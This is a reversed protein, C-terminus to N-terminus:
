GPTVVQIKREIDPRTKQMRIFIETKHSKKNGRINSTFSLDMELGKPEDSFEECSVQITFNGRPVERDLISYCGRDMGTDRVTMNVLHVSEHPSFFVAALTKGVLQIYPEEPTFAPYNTVVGYLRQTAKRPAQPEVKRVLGQNLNNNEEIEDPDFACTGEICKPKLTCSYHTSMSKKCLPMQPCDRERMYEIVAKKNIPTKEGGSECGCCGEDVLTCDSDKTCSLPDDVTNQQVADESGVCGAVLMIAVLLHLRMM